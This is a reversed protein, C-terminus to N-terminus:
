WVGSINTLSSQRTLFTRDEFRCHWPLVAQTSGCTHITPAIEPCKSPSSHPPHTIGLHGQSYAALSRPQVSTFPHCQHPPPPPSDASVLTLRNTFMTYLPRHGAFVPQHGTYSPQHGTADGVSTFSPRSCGNTLRVSPSGM